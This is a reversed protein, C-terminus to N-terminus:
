LGKTTISVDTAKISQLQHWVFSIRQGYGEPAYFQRLSSLPQNLVIQIKDIKNQVVDAMSYIKVGGSINKNNALLFQVQGNHQQHQYGVLAYLLLLEKMAAQANQIAAAPRSNNNDQVGQNLIHYGLNPEDLITKLLPTEGTLHIIGAGNENWRINKLSLNAFDAQVDIKDYGGKLTLTSTGEGWSGTIGTTADQFWHLDEKNIMTSCDIMFNYSRKGTYSNPMLGTSFLENLEKTTKNSMTEVIATTVVELFDGNINSTLDAPMVQNAFSIIDNIYNSVTKGDKMTRNLPVNSSSGSRFYLRRISNVQKRVDEFKRKLEQVSNMESNGQAALEMNNLLQRVQSNFNNSIAVFNKLSLYQKGQGASSKRVRNIADTAIKKNNMKISNMNQAAALKSFDYSVEINNYIEHMKQTILEELEKRQNENLTIPINDQKVGTMFYNVNAELAKINAENNNNKISGLLEQRRHLIAENLSVSSGKGNQSVGHEKYNEYNYHLYHQLNM